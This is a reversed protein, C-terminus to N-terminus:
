KLLENIKDRLGTKFKGPDNRAYTFAFDSMDNKTEKGNNITTLFLASGTAEYKEAMALNKEDDVNIVSMKIAGSKVQNSFYTDLTKRTNEEIAKCTACRRTAHFYIVDLSKAPTQGFTASTLLSTFVLLTLLRTSGQKKLYNM